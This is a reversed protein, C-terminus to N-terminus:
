EDGLEKNPLVIEEIYQVESETLRYKQYLEKDNWSKSFDQTPVLEFTKSTTHQTNKKLTLMFHFFRTKIYSIVNECTKADDFPGVVLYTETCASGIEAYIPKIQDTKSDGSGVAYPMIVKEKDIWHKNTLINKREFYGIGKNQYLKVASQMKYPSTEGKINTALGFPKRSSVLESFSEEKFALVKRLISIGENYRVFIDLGQEKLPRQMQSIMKGSEYTAILCDGQYQKEWLFYNVGGKIEVGPFCDAANPYDHIEKIRKDNLMEDRFEDLGKGGAFWRSPTIMILYDPNLKKAQQIFKHYIPAASAQAGGDSLQYPPNGIIVDFKMTELGLEKRAQQHIFAYAHNEQHDFRDYVAQAAGCESCKGNEWKHEVKPKFINGEETEFVTCISYESNAKKACYLSRRSLLATLETIAIGYLQQSFIHNLRTQLDPIQTELGKILRKAIERLFVGSKSVPDLFKANPDSWLREPLRDLMQNVVDPPTFVEDNSLNALCSLVDPNYNLQALDTM